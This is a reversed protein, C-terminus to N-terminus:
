AGGSLVIGGVTAAILAGGCCIGLAAERGWGPYFWLGLTRVSRRDFVRIFFATVLMILLYQVISGIPVTGAGPAPLYPQLARLGMSVTTLGLGLVLIFIVARWIPRLLGDAGFLFAPGPPAPTESPDSLPSKDM